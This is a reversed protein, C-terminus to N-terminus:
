PLLGYAALSFLYFDSLGPEDAPAEHKKLTM